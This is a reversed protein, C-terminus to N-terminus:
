KTEIISGRERERESVKGREEEGEWERGREGECETKTERGEKGGKGKESTRLSEEKM